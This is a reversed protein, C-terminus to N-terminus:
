VVCTHVTPVYKSQIYEKSYLAKKEKKRKKKIEKKKKLNKYVWTCLISRVARGYM